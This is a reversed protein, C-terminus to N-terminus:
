IFAWSENPFVVAFGARVVIKTVCLLRRVHLFGVIQEVRAAGFSAVVGDPEYGHALIAYLVLGAIQRHLPYTCQIYKPINICVACKVIVHSLLVYRHMKEIVMLM